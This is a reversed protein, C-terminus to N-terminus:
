GPQDPEEPQLATHFLVMDDGPAYYDRVRAEQEYGLGAYFARTRVFGPTGSTLVLLLRQGRARLDGEVHRMLARGRGRGQVDARVGIMLLEWTGETGRVPEYYAVGLLEGGDEDVVCAHGLAATRALHDALLDAVIGVEEVPFLGSAVVLDLVAPVDVPRLARIM